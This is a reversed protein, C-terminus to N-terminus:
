IRNKGAEIRKLSDRMALRIKNFNLIAEMLILMLVTMIIMVTMIEGIGVFIASIECFMFYEIHRVVDLIRLSMETKKFRCVIDTIFAAFSIAIIVWLFWEEM